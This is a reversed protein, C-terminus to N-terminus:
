RSKATGAPKGDIFLDIRYDGPPWGKNPKSM